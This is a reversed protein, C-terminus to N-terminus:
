VTHIGVCIFRRKGRGDKDREREGGREVERERMLNQRTNPFQHRQANNSERQRQRMHSLLQINSTTNTERKRM